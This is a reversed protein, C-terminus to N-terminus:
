CSRGSDPCPSHRRYLGDLVGRARGPTFSQKRARSAALARGDPSVTLKQVVGAIGGSKAYGVKGQLSAAVADTGCGALVLALLAFRWVGM